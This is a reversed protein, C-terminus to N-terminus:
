LFNKITIVIIIYLVSLTEPVYDMILNLFFEDESQNPAKTYYYSKLFIINPHDLEKM